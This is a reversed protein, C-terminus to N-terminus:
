FEVELAIRAFDEANRDFGISYGAKLTIEHPLAFWLQPVVSGAHENTNYQLESGLRILHTWNFRTGFAVIFDPSKSELPIEESLNLTVNLKEGVDKSVVLRPDLGITTSGDEDREVNIEGSIAIDLPWVGEDNFRFRSELRASDFRTSGDDPTEITARADVMWHDSVGAELAFNHRFFPDSSGSSSGYDFWYEAEVESREVTEYVLTEDLYDDRHAQASQAICALTIVTASPLCVWRM